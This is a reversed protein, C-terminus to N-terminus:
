NTDALKSDIIDLIAAYSAASSTLGVISVYILTSGRLWQYVTNVTDYNSGGVTWQSSYAAAVGDHPVAAAPTLAEIAVQTAGQQTL